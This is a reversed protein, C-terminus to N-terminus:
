DESHSSDALAFPYVELCGHETLLSGCVTMTWRSDVIDDVLLVREPLTIGERIFFSECANQCQHASNEMTKQPGAPKKILSEIWILGCRNGLRKAFDTVIDSRLSPVATIHTIQKERILPLLLGASKGVLEDSFRPPKSYKDRKVMEGYGPDGYRSLCIGPMNPRPIKAAKRDKFAAWQKRPEITLVLGDVYGAATLRSAPSVDEPLVPRGLCNACHGCPAAAPDDLARTIFLSYCEKTRVLAKMQETEQRRVSTVADYHARDYVYPKPSAFFQTKEKYLYGDNQLFSLAKGIRTRSINVKQEIGRMTLGGAETVAALIAGTEKETPFATRIFYDIIEEDERGHM